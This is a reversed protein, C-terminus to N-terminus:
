QMTKIFQLTLAFYFNCKSVVTDDLDNGSLFFSVSDRTMFFDLEDAEPFIDENELLCYIGLSHGKTVIIAYHDDAVSQM